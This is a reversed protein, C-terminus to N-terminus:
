DASALLKQEGAGNVIALLEADSLDELRARVGVEVQQFPRGWGRDLLAVAAAVQAMAPAKKDSCIHFDPHPSGSPPRARALRWRGASVWRAPLSRFRATM